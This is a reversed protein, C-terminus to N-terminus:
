ALLVRQLMVEVRGVTALLLVVRGVALEQQQVQGRQARQAMRAPADLQLQGVQPTLTVQDGAAAVVVV